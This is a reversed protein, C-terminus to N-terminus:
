MNLELSFSLVIKIQIQTYMFGKLVSIFYFPRRELASVKRLDWRIIEILDIEILRVSQHSPCNQEDRATSM